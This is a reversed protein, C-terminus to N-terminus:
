SEQVFDSSQQPKNLAQKISEIEQWIQELENNQRTDNEESHKLARQVYKLFAIQKTKSSPYHRKAFSMMYDLEPDNVELDDKDKKREVSESGDDKKAETIEKLKSFKQLLRAKQEPTADELVLRADNILQKLTTNM